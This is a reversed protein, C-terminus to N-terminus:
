SDEQKKETYQKSWAMSPIPKIPEVYRWEHSASLRFTAYTAAAIGVGVFLTNAKWNSPRTWWGGSPSWVQKPYPFRAGGAMNRDRKLFFNNPVTKGVHRIGIFGVGEDHGERRQFEARARLLPQPRKRIEYQRNM